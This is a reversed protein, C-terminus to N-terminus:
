HRHTCLRDLLEEVATKGGAKYARLIASGIVAFDGGANEIAKVDSADSVGFGVALPLTTTQRISTIFKKLDKGFTTKKGTVGLRTVCYLLGSSARAIKKLRTSPTNPAVVFVLNLGHKQCIASIETAEELPLDPIIFGKIGAKAAAKVLKGIGYTLIPNLYSMFYFDVTRYKKTIKEAFDLATYITIGAKRAVENANAIIPGDATPDSFPIQLEILASKKALIDIIEESAELTPHGIVTHTMLKM